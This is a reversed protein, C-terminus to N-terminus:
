VWYRKMYCENNMTRDCTRAHPQINRVDYFADFISVAPCNQRNSFHGKQFNTSVCKDPKKLPSKGKTNLHINMLNGSTGGSNGNSGVGGGSGSASGGDYPSSQGAQWTAYDDEWTPSQDRINSSSPTPAPNSPKEFYFIHFRTKVVLKWSM